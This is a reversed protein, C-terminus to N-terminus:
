CAMPISALSINTALEEGTHRGEFKAGYKDTLYYVPEDFEKGQGVKRVTLVNSNGNGGPRFIVNCKKLEPLVNSM